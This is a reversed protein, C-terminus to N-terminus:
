QLSRLAKRLAQLRATAAVPPNKRLNLREDPDSQLDYFAGTSYLKFRQDRVWYKGRSESYAWMRGPRQVGTLLHAFSVGDLQNSKDPKGGLEAFTPLFDSFDILAESVAGAAISGPRSVILPVRTGSDTLQGKGGRVQRGRLRRPKRSNESKEFM